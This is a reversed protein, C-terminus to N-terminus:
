GGTKANEYMDRSLRVCFPDEDFRAYDFVDPIRRGPFQNQLQNGSYCGPRLPEVDPLDAWLRGTRLCTTMSDAHLLHCSVSADVAPPAWTWPLGSKKGLERLVGAEGDGRGDNAYPALRLKETRWRTMNILVAGLDLLEADASAAARRNRTTGDRFRECRQDWTYNEARAADALEMSARSEFNLGIIDSAESKDDAAAADFTDPEYRNTANTILMYKARGCAPSITHMNEIVWDTVEAANPEKGAKRPVDDPAAVSVVRADQADLLTVDVDRKGAGPQVSVVVGRWRKNRMDRLTELTQSLTWSATWPLAPEFDRIIACVDVRSENNAVEKALRSNQELLQPRWPIQEDAYAMAEDLARLFGDGWRKSPELTNGEGWENFANIFFFNEEGIPNPDSKIRRFMEVMHGKWLKPHAFAMVSGGGIGVRRPTNDWSVMAGRYYIRHIRPNKPWEAPDLGGGSRLGFENIADTPGRSNPNDSEIKTEIVDMGGIAPDESAWTRWANFMRKGKDGINGPDYVMMQVKGNVRIYNPHKFYPVLWDYHERWEEIGGYNQALLTGDGNPRAAGDWRVTWPENAWSLMFPVDPHGDELMAKLVGDM